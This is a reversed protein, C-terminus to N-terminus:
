TSSFGAPAESTVMRHVFFTKKFQAATGRDLDFENGTVRLRLLQKDEKM